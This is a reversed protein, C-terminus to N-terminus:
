KTDKRPLSTGCASCYTEGDDTKRYEEAHQCDGAFYGSRLLEGMIPPNIGTAGFKEINRKAQEADTNM